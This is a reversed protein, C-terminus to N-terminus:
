WGIRWFTDAPLVAVQSFFSIKKRGKSGGRMINFFAFKNKM